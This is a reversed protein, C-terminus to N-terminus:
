KVERVKINRFWVDDGHDQLAVRGKAKTMFAPMDKFKSAAILKKVEPSGIEYEVVKVGNLWHEVHNGKKLVRAANWEGVPKTVDKSCAILAYLAGASTLPSKGDAHRSNDLIQMEPGTQWPYDFGEEAALYIIGSNAGPSVKWECAFEFDQYEDKTVVDGGGGQAKVHLTGDAAEWGKDPFSPKKFSKFGSASTGDFLLTWGAAKEADTLTNPAADAGSKAAPQTAKPPPPPGFDWSAPLTVAGTAAWETGRALLIKFQPDNISAHQEPSGAWVHGLPTHFVRGKGWTSVLVMPENDGTGGSEKSSLATALVKFDAHQTNVLKHYLEDPHSKMDALGKTIPHDHDTYHVDFAHFKGHGTAPKLWVLGVLKQYDIWGQAPDDTVFSNNSAHIIVVGAGANVADLFNKEAASGWREGNYDVVLVKYNALSKADALAEAPTTTLDVTFRGTAELTQKHVNSTYTWDHNQQGTLLLARITDKAEGREPAGSALAVLSAAALSGLTNAFTAITPM